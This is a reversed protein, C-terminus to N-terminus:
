RMLRVVKLPVKSKNIHCWKYELGVRTTFFSGFLLISWGASDSYRYHVGEYKVTKEIIKIDSM